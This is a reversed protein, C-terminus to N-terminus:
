VPHTNACRAASCKHSHQQIISFPKTPRTRPIVFTQTNHRCRNHSHYTTLHVPQKSRNPQIYNHGNLHSDGAYTRHVRIIRRNANIQLEVVLSPTWHFTRFEPHSGFPHSNHAWRNSYNCKLCDSSVKLANRYKTCLALSFCLLM